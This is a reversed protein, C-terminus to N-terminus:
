RALHADLEDLDGGLPDDRGHRDLAVGLGVAQQVAARRDHQGLRRPETPEAMCAWGSRSETPTSMLAVWWRAAVAPVTVPTAVASGGRAPRM